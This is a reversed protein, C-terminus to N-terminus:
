WETEHRQGRTAVREKAQRILQIWYGEPPESRQAITTKGLQQLKETHISVVEVRVRFDEVNNELLSLTNRSLFDDLCINKWAAKAAFQDDEVLEWIRMASEYQSRARMINGLAEENLGSQYYARARMESVEPDSSSSIELARDYASTAAERNGRAVEFDGNLIVLDIYDKSSEDVILEYAKGISEWVMRLDKLELYTRGLLSYCDGVEAGDPGFEVLESFKGIAENLLKVSEHLKLSREDSNATLEAEMRCLRGRCKICYALTRDLRVDQSLAYAEDADIRAKAVKHLRQFAWSTGCILARAEAEVVDRDGNRITRAAQISLHAVYWVLRKKGVEKLRKDLSTFVSAVLRPHSTRCEKALAIVNVVHAGINTNTPTDKIFSLLSSLAGALIEQSNSATFETPLPRMSWLARDLTLVHSNKLEQLESEIQIDTCGLAAAIVQTPLGHKCSQLIILASTATTSIDRTDVVAPPQFQIGLTRAEDLLDLISFSIRNAVAKQFTTFLFERLRRGGDEGALQRARFEIDLKLLYEPVQDVRMRTLLDSAKEGLALLYPETEDVGEARLKLRFDAEDGKTEVAIRILRDLSDLYKGAGTSYVLHFVRTSSNGTAVREVWEQVDEGKPKLKVEFLKNDPEFGVDWSTLQGSASVRPELTVEWIHHPACLTRSMYDLTQQLAFDIQYNMGHGTGPGGVAGSVSVKTQNKKKTFRKSM